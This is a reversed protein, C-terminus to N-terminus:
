FLILMVWYFFVHISLSLSFFTSEQVNECFLNKLANIVYYTGSAMRAPAAAKSTKFYAPTGVLIEDNHMHYCISDSTLKYKGVAFSISRIELQVPKKQRQLCVDSYLSRIDYSKPFITANITSISFFDTYFLYQSVYFPNLSFSQFESVRSKYKQIFKWCYEEIGYFSIGIIRKSWM